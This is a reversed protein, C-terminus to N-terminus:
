ITLLIDDFDTATPTCVVNPDDSASEDNLLAADCNPVVFNAHFMVAGWNRLVLLSITSPCDRVCEEITQMCRRVQILRQKISDLNMM